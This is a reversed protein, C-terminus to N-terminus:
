YRNILLKICTSNSRSEEGSVLFPKPLEAPLDKLSFSCIYSLSMLKYRSLSSKCFCYIRWDDEKAFSSVAM